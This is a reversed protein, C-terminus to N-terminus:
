GQSPELVFLGTNFCDPWGADRTEVRICVLVLGSVTGAADRGYYLSSSVRLRNWCSSAPTSATLGGMM